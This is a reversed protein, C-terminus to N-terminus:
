TETSLEPYTELFKVEDNPLKQGWRRRQVIRGMVMRKYEEEGYKEEFEDDTYRPRPSANFPHHRLHNIVLPNVPLEISHFRPEVNAVRQLM